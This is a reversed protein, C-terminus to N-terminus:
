GHGQLTLRRDPSGVVEPDLSKQSSDLVYTGYNKKLLSNHRLSKLLSPKNNYM